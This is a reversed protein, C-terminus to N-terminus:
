RKSLDQERLQDAYTILVSDARFPLSDQEPSSAPLSRLRNLIARLREPTHDGVAPGHFRSLIRIITSLDPQVM